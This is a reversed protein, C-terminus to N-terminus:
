QYAENKKVSETPKITSANNHKNYYKIYYLCHTKVVAYKKCDRGAAVVEVATSGVTTAGM